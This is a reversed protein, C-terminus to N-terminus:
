VNEYETIRENWKAAAEAESNYPPTAAHCVTCHVGTKGNYIARVTTNELEACAHTEAIGGCFPCPKLEQM